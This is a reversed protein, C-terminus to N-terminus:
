AYRQLLKLITPKDVTGATWATNKKALVYDTWPEFESRSVGYASLKTAVGLGRLYQRVGAIDGKGRPFMELVAAVKQPLHKALHELLLPILVANAQGHPIQHRLTLYYGLAHLMTTGTQGIVIGALTSAYLLNARAERNGAAAPALHRLVLGMAQMALADALPQSRRSTYGELAHTFADLATAVMIEAPLGELVTPDLIALAPYTRPSAFNVKDM